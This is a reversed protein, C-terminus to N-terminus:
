TRGHIRVPIITIRLIYDRWKLIRENQVKIYQREADRLVADLAPKNGHIDSVVAFRRM